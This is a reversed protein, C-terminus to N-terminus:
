DMLESLQKIQDRKNYIVALIQVIKQEEDVWYYIYYNKVSIKRVGQSGWPEEDIVQYSTPMLVLQNM